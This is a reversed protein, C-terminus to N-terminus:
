EWVPGEGRNEEWIPRGAGAGNKYLGEQGLRMGM